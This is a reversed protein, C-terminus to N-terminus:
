CCSCGVVEVQVVWWSPLFDPVLTIIHWMLYLNPVSNQIHWQKQAKCANNLCIRKTSKNSVASRQTCESAAGIRIRIRVSAPTSMNNGRIRPRLLFAECHCVCKALIRRRQLECRLWLRRLRSTIQAIWLWVASCQEAPKKCIQSHM